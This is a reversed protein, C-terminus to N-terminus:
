YRTVWRCNLVEKFISEVNELNVHINENKFFMIELQIQCKIDLSHHQGWLLFQYKNKKKKQTKCFTNMQKYLQKM